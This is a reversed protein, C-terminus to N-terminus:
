AIVHKPDAEDFTRGARCTTLVDKARDFQEVRTDVVGNQVWPSSDKHHLTPCDDRGPLYQVVVVGGLEPKCCVSARTPEPPAASVQYTLRLTVPSNMNINQGRHELKRQNASSPPALHGLPAAKETWM